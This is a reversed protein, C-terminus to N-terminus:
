GFQNLSLTPIKLSDKTPISTLEFVWSTTIPEIPIMTRMSAAIIVCKFTFFGNGLIIGDIIRKLRQAIM